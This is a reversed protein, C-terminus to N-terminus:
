IWGTPRHELVDRVILSARLGQSRKKLRASETQEKTM